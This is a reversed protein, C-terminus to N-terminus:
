RTGGTRVGVRVERSGTGTEVRFSLLSGDLAVERTGAADRIRALPGDIRVGDGLQFFVFGEEAASWPPLLSFELGHLGQARRVAEPLEPSQPGIWGLVTGDQLYLHADFTDRSLRAREWEVNLHGLRLAVPLVGLATLDTGLRPETASVFRAEVWVSRDTSGDPFGAFTTAARPARAGDPPTEVGPGGCGALGLLGIVLAGM